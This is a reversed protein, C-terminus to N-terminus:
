SSRWVSFSNMKQEFLRKPPSSTSLVLAIPGVTYIGIQRKLLYTAIAADVVCAWLEHIYKFGDVIRQTDTSMLTVSDSDQITGMDLMLSKDFILIVLTGRLKTLFRNM